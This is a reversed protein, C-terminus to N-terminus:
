IPLGRPQRLGASFGSEITRRTELIDLGIGIAVRKLQERAWDEPLAGAAVFGALAFASRNLQENRGPEVAQSLRCLEDAVGAGVYKSVDGALPKPEPRPPPSTPLAAGILWAPADAFSRADNM